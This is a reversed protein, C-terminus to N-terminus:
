RPVPQLPAGAHPPAPEARAEPPEALGALAGLVADVPYAEGAPTQLDPLRAVYRSPMWRSQEPFGELWASTAQAHAIEGRAEALAALRKGYAARARGVRQKLKAHYGDRHQEVTDILEQWANAVAVDLGDLHRRADDIAALSKEQAAPDPPTKDARIADAYAKDDAQKAAPHERELAALRTQAAILQAHLDRYTDAAKAIADHDIRDPLEGDHRRRPAAAATRLDNM